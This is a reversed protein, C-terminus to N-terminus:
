GGLYDHTDVATEQRKGRKKEYRGGRNSMALGRMADAPHSTWDHLPHTSWCKNIEDWEKRYQRLAEVLRACKNEDIYCQPLLNRVADIGDSISHKKVLRFKIGLKRATQLRSVGTGLERVALDHPGWHAGYVYDSREGDRLRAVYHALGEGSNEYYDILRTELGYRQYFIISTADGMGIDWVTSVKLRPEWPVKTIRGDKLAAMMQKGYYSGTIPADFSCYFEQQILEEPMQADREDQIAESSIVPTGDPRKTDNVTLVEAFWKPNKKAMQLMDYGHNRGRATYIFLAWGGNEALIPRIIDWARPDQLSYESFVCGIPNTGVLRDPDDTGVVQYISGTKMTIRMDTDNKAKILGPPFYDVFKRGDRTFGNWVIKRGQNYTPLLHWYLGTRQVASTCCMNIATLDKGTRRHWVAVGRLGGQEFFKWIPM